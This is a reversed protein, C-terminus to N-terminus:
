GGSGTARRADLIDLVLVGPDRKERVQRVDTVAHEGRSQLGYAARGSPMLRYPTHEVKKRLKGYITVLERRRSDIWVAPYFAQCAAFLTETDRFVGQANLLVQMMSAELPSDGLEAVCVGMTNMVWFDAHKKGRKPPSEHVRGGVSVVPPAPAAEANAVGPMLLAMAQVRRWDEQTANPGFTIVIPPFPSYTM